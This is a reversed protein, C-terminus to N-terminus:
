SARERERQIQESTLETDFLGRGKAWPGSWIIEMNDVIADYLSDNGEANMQYEEFLLYIAVQSMGESKLSKALAELAALPQPAKLGKEFLARMADTAM